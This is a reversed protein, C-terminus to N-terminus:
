ISYPDTSRWATGGQALQRIESSSAPATSSSHRVYVIAPDGATYPRSNGPVVRLMIVGLDDFHPQGTLDELKV